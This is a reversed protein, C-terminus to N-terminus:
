FCFCISIHEFLAPAHSRPSLNLLVAL